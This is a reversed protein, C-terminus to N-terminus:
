TWAPCRACPTLSTISKSRNSKGPAWFRPPRASKASRTVIIVMHPLRRRGASSSEKAPSADANKAALQPQTRTIQAIGKGPAQWPTSAGNNSAQSTIPVDDASTRAAGLATVLVCLFIGSIYARRM